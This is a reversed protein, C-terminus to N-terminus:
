TLNRYTEPDDVDVLIGPDNVEVSQTADGYKRIVTNAGAGPNLELLEDFLARGILVPHGRQGQYTPVVVPSGSARFAAILTRIVGASVAPHDVLCLLIAELGAGAGSKIAKLGTQFSSTQGQRYDPNVVVQVGQFPAAREIEEAHHGLVVTQHSVGAERLTTLVTELFTRGSYTLLAKDAGMRSSEGAALVLGAIV